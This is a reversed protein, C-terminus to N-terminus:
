RGLEGALYKGFARIFAIDSKLETESIKQFHIKKAKSKRVIDCEHAMHNRRTYLRAWEQQLHDASKQPRLTKGYRDFIKNKGCAACVEQLRNTSLFSERYMKDLVAAKIKSGPRSRIKGGKGKRVRSEIAIRYSKSLELRVISDLKETKALAVFRKSVSEHLIKDIAAMAFVLASRLLVLLAAAEFDKHSLGGGKVGVILVSDNKSRWIDKKKPWNTLKAALFRKEWEPRIARLNKTKLRDYLHVLQDSHCVAELFTDSLKM